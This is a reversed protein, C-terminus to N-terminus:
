NRRPWPFTKPLFNPNGFFLRPIKATLKSYNKMIYIGDYPLARFCGIAASDSSALIIYLMTALHTLDCVLSFSFSWLLWIDRDYIKNWNLYRYISPPIPPYLRFLVTWIIPNLPRQALHRIFSAGLRLPLRGPGQAPWYAHWCSEAKSKLASLACALKTLRSWNVATKRARFVFFLFIAVWKAMLSTGVSNHFTRFHLTM